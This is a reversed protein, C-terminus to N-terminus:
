HLPPRARTRACVLLRDVGVGDNSFPLILREIPQGGDADGPVLHHLLPVGAFAATAYDDYVPRAADRLAGGHRSITELDDLGRAPGPMTVRFQFRATREATVAIWGTDDLLEALRGLEFDGGAPLRGNRPRAARWLALAAAIPSADADLSSLPLIRRKMPEGRAKV